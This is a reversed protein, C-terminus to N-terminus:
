EDYRLTTDGKAFVWMMSPQCLYVRNEEQDRWNPHYSTNLRVGHTSSFKLERSTATITPIAQFEPTGGTDVIFKALANWDEPTNIFYEHETKGQAPLAHLFVSELGSDRLNSRFATKLTSQPPLDFIIGQFYEGDEKLVQHWDDSSYLVPISFLEPVSYWWEFFPVVSNQSLPVYLFPRYATEEFMGRPTGLDFLEVDGRKAVAHALSSHHLHSQFEKSYAVVYQTRYLRLRELMTDFPQSNFLTSQALGARGWIFSESYSHLTPILFISSFSSEALLGPLVPIDTRIPIESAFYHPSGLFKNAFIPVEVTVRGTPKLKALDEIIAKGSRAQPFDDLFLPKSQEGNPDFALTFDFLTVRLFALAFVGVVCGRAIRSSIVGTSAVRQALTIAGVTGILGWLLFLFYTFRYYHLNIPLITLFFNRPLFVIGLFFPVLLSLKRQRLLERTGTVGLVTFAFAALPLDRGLAPLHTNYEAASLIGLLLGFSNAIDRLADFHFGPFFIYLPELISRTLGIAQGGSLWLNQLVGLWWPSGLFFGVISVLVLKKRRVPSTLIFFPLFFIYLYAASLLHMCPMLAILAVVWVANLIGGQARYRLLSGVSFLFATAGFFLPILGHVITSTLNQGLPAEPSHHCLILTAVFLGATWGTKSEVLWRAAFAFALVFTLATLILSLNFSLPAAIAGFSFLHPAALLLYPVPGYLEFAPYGAFWRTDYGAIRGEKLLRLMETYLYYHSTTDWGALRKESLLPVVHYLVIGFCLALCSLRFAIDKSHRTSFMGARYRM